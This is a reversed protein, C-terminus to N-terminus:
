IPKVQKFVRVTQFDDIEEQKQGGAEGTRKKTKSIEVRIWQVDFRDEM